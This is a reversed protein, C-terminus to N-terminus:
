SKANVFVGESSGYFRNSGYNKFTAVVEGYGGIRFKNWGGYQISDQGPQAMMACSAAMSGALLLHRLTKNFIM